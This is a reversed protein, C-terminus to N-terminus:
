EQIRGRLADDHLDRCECLGQLFLGLFTGPYAPDDSWEAADMLDTNGNIFILLRGNPDFVSRAFPKHGDQEWADCGKCYAYGSNPVPMLKRNIDFLSHFIPHHLPLDVIQYEPVVKKIQTEFNRWEFSGWFDDIMWFGAGTSTNACGGPTLRPFYWRAPGRVSYIFPYNFLDPHHIPLARGEPAVDIGTLRKLVEIIRRDGKPYDTYWNKM